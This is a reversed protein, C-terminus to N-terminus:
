FAVYFIWMVVAVALRGALSSLCSAAMMSSAPAANKKGGARPRLLDGGGYSGKARREVVDSIREDGDVVEVQERMEVEDKTTVQLHHHSSSYHSQHDEHSACLALSLCVIITIFFLLKPVPRSIVM